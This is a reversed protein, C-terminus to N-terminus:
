EEEYVYYLQSYEKSTEDLETKVVKGGMKEYFKQAQYNYYNCCNFFKKNKNKVIEFFKKGLGKGRYSVDIGLDNIVLDYGALGGHLPVGVIMYGIIKNNDKCVYVEQDESKILEKFKEKRLDYDYNDIKEDSYIGRYTTEWIRKKLYSLEKSDAINALTIQMHIVWNFKLLNLFTV